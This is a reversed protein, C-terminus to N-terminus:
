QSVVVADDTPPQSAQQLLGAHGNDGLRGVPEFRNAQGLLVAGVQQDDIDPHRPEVADFHGFSGLLQLARRAHDDQGHM